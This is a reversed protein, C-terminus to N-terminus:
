SWGLMQSVSTGLKVIIWVLILLVVIGIATGLLTGVLRVWLPDKEEVKNERVISQFRDEFNDNM